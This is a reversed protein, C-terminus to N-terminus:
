NKHQHYKPSGHLTKRPYKTPLINIKSLIVTNQTKFISSHSVNKYLKKLMDILSSIFKKFFRM